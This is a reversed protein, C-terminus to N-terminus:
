EEGGEQRQGLENDIMLLGGKFGEVMKLREVIEDTQAEEEVQEDVFWELFNHSAHDNEKMVLDMLKNINETIYKEHEYAAKFVELASEWEKPPKDMKGIEIEGGRDLIYDFFRMAHDMEENAQIRMWSACGNLNIAHFYGAMALYINASYMERTMQENFAKEISEKIM